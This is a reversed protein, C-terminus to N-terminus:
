SEANKVRKRIPTLKKLQASQLTLAETVQEYSTAATVTHRLELLSNLYKDIYERVVENKFEELEPDDM